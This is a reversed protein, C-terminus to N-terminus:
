IMRLFCAVMAPAVHRRKGLAKGMIAKSQSPAQFAGGRKDWGLFLRNM